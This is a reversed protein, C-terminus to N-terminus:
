RNSVYVAPWNRWVASAINQNRNQVLLFSCKSLNETLKTRLSFLASVGSSFWRKPWHKRLLIDKQQFRASRKVTRCLYVHRNENESIKVNPVLILIIQEKNFAFKTNHWFAKPNQVQSCNTQSRELLHFQRVNLNNLSADKKEVSM